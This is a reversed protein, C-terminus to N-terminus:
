VNRNRFAPSRKSVNFVWNLEDENQIKSGLKKMAGKFEYGIVGNKPQEGKGITAVVGKVVENEVPQGIKEPTPHYLMTGEPSVVYVYSSEIGSLGVEGLLSNLYETKFTEEFGIDQISTDLLEGYACSLDELYNQAINM